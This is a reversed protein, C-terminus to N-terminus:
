LKNAYNVFKFRGDREIILGFLRETSTQGSFRREVTCFGWIRNDGEIRATDACAHRVYGLPSGGREALAVALDQDSRRSLTFWLLEPSLDYPPLAQLTTPYYLWAFEAPSLLMTRLAATDRQELARIFGRVLADRTAAGGALTDTRPLGSRFAALEVERPRVSDVAGARTSPRDASAPRCAGAGAAIALM